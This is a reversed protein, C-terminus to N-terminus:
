CPMLVSSRPNKFMLINETWMSDLPRDMLLEFAGKNGYSYYNGESGFHSSSGQLINNKSSKITNCHQEGWTYGTRNLNEDLRCMMLLLVNSPKYKRDMRDNIETRLSTGIKKISKDSVVDKKSTTILVYGPSM